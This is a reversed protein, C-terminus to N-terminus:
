ACPWPRALGGIRMGRCVRAGGALQEVERQTLGLLGAAVVSVHRNPKLRDLRFVEVYRPLMGVGLADHGTLNAEVLQDAVLGAERENSGTRGILARTVAKLQAARVTVYSTNASANSEPFDAPM